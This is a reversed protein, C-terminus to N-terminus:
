LSITISTIADWIVQTLEPKNLCLDFFIDFSRTVPRQSPFGGTVPLNGECLALLTSFTEMQHRWWSSMHEMMIAQCMELTRLMINYTIKTVIFNELLNGVQLIYLNIRSSM